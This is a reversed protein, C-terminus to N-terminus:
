RPATHTILDLQAPPASGPLIARAPLDPDRLVTDAIFPQSEDVVADGFARAVLSARDVAADPRVRARTRTEARRARIRGLVAREIQPESLLHLEATTLEEPEEAV